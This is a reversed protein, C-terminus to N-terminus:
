KLYGLSRLAEETEPSLEVAEAAGAPLGAFHRAMAELMRGAEPHAAPDLPSADVATSSGDVLEPAASSDPLPLM